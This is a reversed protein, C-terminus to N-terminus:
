SAEHYTFEESLKIDSCPKIIGYLALDRGSIHKVAVGEHNLFIFMEHHHECKKIYKSYIVYKAESLVGFREIISQFKPSTTNIERIELCDTQISNLLVTPLKPVVEHLNVYKTIDQM